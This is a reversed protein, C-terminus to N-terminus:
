DELTIAAKPCRQVAEEVKPRLEEAPEVQLPVGAEPRPVETVPPSSEAYLTELLLEDELRTLAQDVPVFRRPM